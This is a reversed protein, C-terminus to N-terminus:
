PCPGVAPKTTSRLWMQACTTPDYGTVTQITTLMQSMRAPKGAHAAYFAALAEDVKPAGVKLALARYFFAGRKYPANTFLNDELVDIAGCSDPWVPLTGQIGGLETEYEAWVAAGVAPAVVDLARGTLYSVTGESLVFDEWCEIRIGDGFWGHAAEHVNVEESDFAGASTHWYPHHEMGGLAGVGWSVSVGGMKPGFRYPGITKEFWDVAAVLNASGAQARALESARHFMSIQTGATTTGVSLEEYADISWAIQYAPAESSIATPYIATKDAPVGTLDLTFTTGDSPESHCPFVNGCYYPWILTFGKTSVGQFSEHTKYHYAIAVTRPADSAALGLDLKADTVAFLLPAGDLTVGDIMLDNVELTAGPLESAGFTISASASLATVDFALDTAIIERAPNATPPTPVDPADPTAPSTDDGCAALTVLAALLRAPRRM